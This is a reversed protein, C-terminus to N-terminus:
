HRGFCAACANFFILTLTWSLDHYFIVKSLPFYIISAERQSRVYEHQPCVGINAYIQDMDKRLDMGHIYATGCTPKVLGIM